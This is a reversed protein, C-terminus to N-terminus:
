AVLSATWLLLIFAYSNILLTRVWHTRLIKSLYASGPGDEEKSLRAQWRGWFVATLVLASVQCSLNGYVAWSPSGSPHYFVLGVSGALAAGVPVFVWYPLVKWHRGQIAPFEAKGVLKWSRFIDLEHAWITGVNYFALATNLLLFIAPYDM